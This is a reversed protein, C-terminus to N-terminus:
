PVGSESVPQQTQNMVAELEALRQKLSEVYERIQTQGVPLSGDPKATAKENGPVGDTQGNSQLAALLRALTSAEPDSPEEGDSPSSASPQFFSSTVASGLTGGFGFALLLGVVAPRAVLRWLTARLYQGISTVPPPSQSAAGNDATASLPTAEAASPPPAPSSEPLPPQAIRRDFMLEHAAELRAELRSLTLHANDLLVQLRRDIGAVAADMALSSPKAPTISWRPQHRSASHTGATFVYQAHIIGDPDLLHLVQNEWCWSLRNRGWFIDALTDRAPNGADHLRLKAGPVLTVEGFTYSDRAEKDRIQWGQLDLPTPGYWAITVIEQDLYGVPGKAPTLSEIRLDGQTLRTPRPGQHATEAIGHSDPSQREAM